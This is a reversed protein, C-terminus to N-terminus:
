SHVNKCAGQFTQLGSACTPSVPRDSDGYSQQESATHGLGPVHGRQAAARGAAFPNSSETLARESCLCHRACLFHGTFPLWLPCSVSLCAHGHFLCRQSTAAFNVCLSALGRGAGAGRPVYTCATVQCTGWPLSWLPALILGVQGLKGLVTGTKFRFAKLHCCGLHGTVSSNIFLIHDTQVM